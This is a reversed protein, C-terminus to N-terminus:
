REYKKSCSNLTLQACTSRSHLTLQVRSTNPNPALQAGTSRREFKSSSFTEDCCSEAFKITKENTRGGQYHWFYYIQRQKKATYTRKVRARLSRLFFKALALQARTSRLNLVLQARITRSNLALQARTSRLEKISSHTNLEAGSAIKTSLCSNLKLKSYHVSKVFNQFIEDCNFEAFKEHM